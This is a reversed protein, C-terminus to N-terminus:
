FIKDERDIHERKYDSLFYECKNFLGPCRTLERIGYKISLYNEDPKLRGCRCRWIFAIKDNM